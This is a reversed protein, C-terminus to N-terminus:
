RTAEGDGGLGAPASAPASARPDASDLYQVPSACGEGAQRAPPMRGCRLADIEDRIYRRDFGCPPRKYRYARTLPNWILAHDRAAERRIDAALTRAPERVALYRIYDRRLEISTPARSDVSEPNLGGGGIWEDESFYIPFGKGKYDRYTQGLHQRLFAELDFRAKGAKGELQLSIFMEFDAIDDETCIAPYRGSCDYKSM